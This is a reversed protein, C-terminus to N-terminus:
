GEFQGWRLLSSLRYPYITHRNRCVINTSLSIITHLGIKQSKVPTQVSAAYAVSGAGVKTEM